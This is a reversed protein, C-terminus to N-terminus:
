VILIHPILTFTIQNARHSSKIANKSINEWAAVGFNHLHDFITMCHFGYALGLFFQRKHGGSSCSMTLVASFQYAQEM